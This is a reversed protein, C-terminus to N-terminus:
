DGSNNNGEDDRGGRARPHAKDYVELLKAVSVSTYKQTTALSEHGLLEQISRLNAGSDLLHTAFSHRLVHPSVSRNIGSKQAQKKVLSKLSHREFRKGKKDVFLPAGGECIDERKALYAELARIAYSGVPVMREKKGKGRVKLMAQKADLDAINLGVLEGARIGSSYLLELAASERLSKEDTAGDHSEVLSFVEDVTLHRPLQKEVKPPQIAIAPNIIIKGRRVLFRFFSRLSSIKKAISSKKLKLRHLHGLWSRICVVDVERPSSIGREQAFQIFQVIDVDYNIVTYHSADKETVLYNKFEERANQM